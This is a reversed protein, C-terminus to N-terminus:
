VGIVAHLVWYNNTYTVGNRTGTATNNAHGKIIDDYVYVYKSGIKEFGNTAMYIGAGKGTHNLAHWKPVFQYVYDYEQAHGNVFATWVLLIGTAQASVRQPLDVKQSASMFKDPSVLWNNRGIQMGALNIIKNAPDFYMSTSVNNQANYNADSIASIYFRNQYAGFSFDYDASKMDMAPAWASASNNDPIKIGANNRADKWQGGTPDSMGGIGVKSLKAVRKFTVTSGSLTIKYLIMDVATAGGAISGGNTAPTTPYASTTEEGKVLVIEVADILTSSNHTFRAVVLDIRNSGTACTDVALTEGTVQALHGQISIVGDQLVFQNISPMSAELQGDSALIYDGNGIVGRNAAADMYPTIHREGTYGTIIKVSM